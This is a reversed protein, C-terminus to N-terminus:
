QGLAEGKMDWDIHWSDFSVPAILPYTRDLWPKTLLPVTYHYIPAYAVEKAALIEEAQAYLVARKAPDQEKQAELTLEDFESSYVENCNPDLCNRRLVNSGVNVNFVDHVWNNEDGYDACWGLRWVHPMEEVPTSYKLTDLYARWEQDEVRVDVGLVDKWMQQIAAAIQAHSESTNYMLTIDMANLDEITMANEDLYSQLAALAAEPDYALGVTGPEPAGFIGPPAFSTAPIHAGQTVEDILSQRNIAQSFAQRVRVDDFPPKTHTFGYYYTCADTAEFFEQSLKPDAKVRDIQQIPVRVTDLENNQYLTLAKSEEGIMVGNIKEIQVGDANPWFPNKILDLEEGDIWKEIVYPGSSVVSGPSIWEVGHEEITWAPVPMTVWTSAISPFYSAPNNLTFTCIMAEDDCSVGVDDLTIGQSGENVAQANKINFLIQTYDSRTAPDITRKVGYEVDSPKVFRPNGADDVDQVVEGSVTDYKVWPIDTRLTFTWTQNGEEDEGVQWQTALQPQVEATEQDIKTLGVFTNSVLIVSTTDTALAPDGLLFENSWNYNLTIDTIVDPVPSATPADPVATAIPNEVVESDELRCAGLLIVVMPVVVAVRLYSKKARLMGTDVFFITLYTNQRESVFSQGKIKRTDIAIEIDIM